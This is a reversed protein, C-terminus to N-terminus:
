QVSPTSRTSTTSSSGSGGRSMGAQGMGPMERRRTEFPTRQRVAAPRAPPRRAPVAERRPCPTAGWGDHVMSVGGNACSVLLWSTRTPDFRALVASQPATASRLLAPSVARVDMSWSDEPLDGAVVEALRAISTGADSSRFAALGMDRRLDGATGAEVYREVDLDRGAVLVLVAAQSKLLSPLQGVDGLDGPQGPQRLPWMGAPFVRGVEHRRPYVVYTGMGPVVAFVAVEARESLAVELGQSTLRLEAQLPSDAPQPPQQQMAPACAALTGAVLLSVPIRM